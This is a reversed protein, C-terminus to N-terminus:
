TYRKLGETGETCQSFLDYRVVKRPVLHGNSHVSAWVNRTTGEPLLHHVHLAHPSLGTEVHVFQGFQLKHIIRM